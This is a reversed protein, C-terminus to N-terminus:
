LLDSILSFPVVGDTGCYDNEESTDIAISADIETKGTKNIVFLKEPSFATMLGEGVATKIPILRLRVPNQEYGNELVYDISVNEGCLIHNLCKKRVVIVHKGNYPDVAVNGTDCVLCVKETVGNMQIEAEVRTARFGSALKKGTFMFVFCMASSVFLLLPFPVTQTTHLSVSILLNSLATLIGGSIFSIIYFACLYRFLTKFTCKGASIRCMVVSVIINLLIGIVKGICFYTAGLAYLSGLLSAFLIRTLKNKKGVLGSSVVLILYDAAFNIIFFTDAYIVTM